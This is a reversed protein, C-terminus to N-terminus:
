LFFMWVLCDSWSWSTVENMTCNKKCGPCMCRGAWWRFESSEGMSLVSALQSQSPISDHCSKSGLDYYIMCFIRKKMMCLNAEFLFSEDLVNLVKGFAVEYTFIPPFLRKNLNSKLFSCVISSFPVRFMGQVSYCIIVSVQCSLGWTWCVSCSSWSSLSKSSWLANSEILLWNVLEDVYDLMIPWMLWTLSHLELSLLAFTSASAAKLCKCAIYLAHIPLCPYQSSWGMASMKIHICWNEM